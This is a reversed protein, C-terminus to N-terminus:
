NNSRGIGRKSLTYLRHHNPRCGDTRWGWCTPQLAVLNEPVPEQSGPGDGPAINAALICVATTGAKELPAVPRRGPGLPEAPETPSLMGDCPLEEAPNCGRSLHDGAALCKHPPCMPTKGNGLVCPTRHLSYSTFFCVCESVFVCVCLCVCVYM